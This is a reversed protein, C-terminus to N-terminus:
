KVQITGIEVITEGNSMLPANPEEFYYVVVGLSYDGQPLDQPLHLAHRGHVLAGPSWQSSPLSPRSNM